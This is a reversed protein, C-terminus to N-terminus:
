LLATALQTALGSFNFLCVGAIFLTGLKLATHQGLRCLIGALVASSGVKLSVAAPMGLEMWARMVPNMELGGLGLIYYTLILDLINLLVFLFAYHRAPSDIHATKPM